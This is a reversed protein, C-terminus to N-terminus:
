PIDKSFHNLEKNNLSKSFNFEKFEILGGLLSTLINRSFFLFSLAMSVDPKVGYQGFLIVLTGERIGLGAFSLPLMIALSM